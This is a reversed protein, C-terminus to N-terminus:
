HFSTRSGGQSSSTLISQSSVPTANAGSLQPFPALRSSSTHSRSADRKAKLEQRQKFTLDRSIFVNGYEPHDKLSKAKSVLEAKHNKSAMTVRYIKRERNICFVDGSIEGDVEPLLFGCVESFKTGFSNNDDANIGKVVISSARKKREEFEFLESYLERRTLFNTNSTVSGSAGESQVGLTNPKDNILYLRNITESMQAVNIALAKVIEFIQSLAANTESSAQGPNKNKPAKCRCVSCVFKIADGGENQIISIANSSLGTCDTKPHFWISCRDCGIADDGTQLNCLGCQQSAEMQSEPSGEGAGAEGSNIDTNQRRQRRSTM